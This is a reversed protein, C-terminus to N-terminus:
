GTMRLGSLKRPRLIGRRHPLIGGRREEVASPIVLTQRAFANYKAQRHRWAVESKKSQQNTASHQDQRLASALVRIVMVTVAALAALHEVLM